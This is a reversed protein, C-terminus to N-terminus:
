PRIDPTSHRIATSGKPADHEHEHEYDYGYDFDYDFFFVHNNGGLECQREQIPLTKPIFSPM